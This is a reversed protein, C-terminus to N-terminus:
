VGEMKLTIIKMKPRGKGFRLLSLSMFVQIVPRPTAPDKLADFWREDLKQQTEADVRISVSTNEFTTYRRKAFFTNNMLRRVNNAMAKPICHTHHGDQRSQSWSKETYGLSKMHVRLARMFAHADPFFEPTTDEAPSPAEEAEAEDEEKGKSADPPPPPPPTLSPEAFAADMGAWKTCASEPTRSRYVEIGESNMTNTDAAVPFLLINTDDTHIVGEDLPTRPAREPVGTQLDSGRPLSFLNQILVPLDVGTTNKRYHVHAYLLCAIREEDACMQKQKVFPNFNIDGDRMSVDPVFTVGTGSRNVTLQFTIEVIDPERSREFVLPNEYEKTHYEMSNASGM